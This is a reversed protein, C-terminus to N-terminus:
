AAVPVDFDLAESVIVVAIAQGFMALWRLRVLTDLMVFQRIPTAPSFELM